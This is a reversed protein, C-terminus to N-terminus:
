KKVTRKRQLAAKVQDSPPARNKFNVVKALVNGQGGSGNDPSSICLLALYISGLLSSITGFAVTCYGDIYDVKLWKRGIYLFNLVVLLIYLPLTIALLMRSEFCLAVLGLLSFLLIALFALVYLIDGRHQPYDRGANPNTENHQGGSLHINEENGLETEKLSIKGFNDIKSGFSIQQDDHLQYIYCLLGIILMIAYLLRVICLSICLNSSM